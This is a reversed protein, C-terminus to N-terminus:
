ISLFSAFLESMNHGCHNQDVGGQSKAVHFVSQLVLDLADSQLLCGHADDHVQQILLLLLYVLNLIEDLAFQFFLARAM